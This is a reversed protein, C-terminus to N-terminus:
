PGPGYRRPACRNSSHPYTRHHPSRKLFPGHSPPLIHKFRRCQTESNATTLFLTSLIFIVLKKM